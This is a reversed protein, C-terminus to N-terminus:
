IKNACIDDYLSELFKTNDSISNILGEYSKRARAHITSPDNFIDEIISELGDVVQESFRARDEFTSLLVEGTASRKVNILWGKQDTNIEPLARIDTTIVPSACAQAELVSYGYADAYTPLLGVHSKKLLELVETNPLSYQHIINNPYKEILKMAKEVDEKTTKSAYDGFQMKSVINLEWDTTGNQYLRDFVKLIELGGKRFFDAGVISFILRGSIDKEIKELPMCRQAPHLVILKEKVVDVFEPFKEQVLREQIRAAGHSIAIIKKCSDGAILELGRQSKDGWFRPISTSFSTVWPTNGWSLADFFHFLEVKNLDFDKFSNWYFPHTKKTIKNYLYAPVKHLNQRKEFRYKTYPLEAFNRNQKYGITNTGIIKKMDNTLFRLILM